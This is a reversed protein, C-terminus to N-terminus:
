IKTSPSIAMYPDGGIAVKVLPTSCISRSDLGAWRPFGNLSAFDPFVTM